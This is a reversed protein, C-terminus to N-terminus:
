RISFIFPASKSSYNNTTWLRGNIARDAAPDFGHRNCSVNALESHTGTREFIVRDSQHPM